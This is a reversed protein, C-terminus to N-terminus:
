ATMIPSPSSVPPSPTMPDDKVAVATKDAGRAFYRLEAEEKSGAAVVGKFDYGRRDLADRWLDFGFVGVGFGIVLRLGASLILDMGTWQPLLALLAVAILLMGGAFWARHFWLWLVGFIFAFISFGERVFITDGNEPAGREHVTYIHTAM